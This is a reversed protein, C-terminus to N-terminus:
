PSSGYAAGFTQRLTFCNRRTFNIRLLSDFVVHLFTDCAFGSNLGLENDIMSFIVSLGATLDHCFAVSWTFCSENSGDFGVM